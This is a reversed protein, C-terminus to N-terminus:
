HVTKTHFDDFEEALQGLPKASTPRGTAVDVTGLGMAVDYEGLAMDLLMFALADLQDEDLGEVAIYLKVGLLGDEPWSDYRVQRFQIERDFMGLLFDTGMRKRFATIRFGPIPPAAGVTRTVAGFADLDGDASIILEIPWDADSGIEHTMSPHIKQLRRTLERTTLATAPQDERLARVERGIQDAHKAFWRWFGAVPDGRLFAPLAM